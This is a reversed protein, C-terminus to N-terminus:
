RPVKVLLRRLAQYHVQISDLYERLEIQEDPTHDLRSDGPGYTVIPIRLATGLLNMDGTGTKRQLVAPRARVRRIGLSLARVLPSDPDAEYPECTDEVEATVGVKPNEIRYQAIVKQVEDFLHKPTLQPPVRFDIHIDCESPITSSKGGGRIETLCSSVSYFRSESREESFHVAKLRSWVEFAKEVANEFLWPSASHGSQTRCTVKLHLSGKYAVTINEVGSPEGFIAYDASVGKDILHKTGRGLGEEDVVGVVTVKGGFAEKTLLSTAVIMAALAPKADVAGRGYVRGDEVKVPIRGPVTDMHGCLLVAPNGSGVESIANGVEDKWSNFGLRRMEEILLTAIADEEGSPSYTELMRTLLHIAYDNM